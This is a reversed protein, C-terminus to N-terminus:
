SKTNEDIRMDIDIPQIRYLHEVAAHMTTEVMKSFENVEKITLKEDELLRRTYSQDIQHLQRLYALFIAKLYMLHDVAERVQRRPKAIMVGYIIGFVGTGGTLSVGVWNDLSSGEYLVLGASATVLIIGLLFVIMDMIIALKFGNRAEKVSTEFLKRIKDETKELETTYQAIAITRARLKQYAAEGGMESLLRRAVVQQEASGSIMIAELEDVVFNRDMWRLANAFGEMRDEGAKSAAEVVRATATRIELLKELARAAERVVAPNDDVLEEILVPASSEVKLNGLAILAKIRMGAQKTRRYGAIFKALTRAADEAHIWTSPVQGLAIIADYTEDSYKGEDVIRCIRNVMAPIAVVRLARLAAWQSTKEGLRDEIEQMSAIDGKSALIAVALMRVLPEKEEIKIQRALEELDSAGAEKLGELTYYRVWHNPEFGPDLHNRVIKAAMADDDSIRGLTSLLWSRTWVLASDKEINERGPYFEQSLADLIMIRLRHHDIAQGSDSLAAQAAARESERGNVLSNFIKSTSKISNSYM